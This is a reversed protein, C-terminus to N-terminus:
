EVFLVRIQDLIMGRAKILQIALNQIQQWQTLQNSLEFYGVLNRLICKVRLADGTLDQDLIFQEEDKEEICYRSLLLALEHPISIPYAQLINKLQVISIETFPDLM